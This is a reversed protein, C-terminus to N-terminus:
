LHAQRRLTPGKDLGNVRSLQFTLDGGLGAIEDVSGCIKGEYFKLIAM